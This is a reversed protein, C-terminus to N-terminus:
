SATAAGKLLELERSTERSAAETGTLAKAKEATGPEM